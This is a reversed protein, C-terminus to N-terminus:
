FTSTSGIQISNNHNNHERMDEITVRPFPRVNVIRGKKSILNNEIGSIVSDGAIILTSKQSWTHLFWGSIKDIM